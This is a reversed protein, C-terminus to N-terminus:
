ASLLVRQRRRESVLEQLVIIGKGEIKRRVTLYFVRADKSKQQDQLTINFYERAQFAFRDIAEDTTATFKPLDKTGSMGLDVLSKQIGEGLRIAEITERSKAEVAPADSRFDVIGESLAPLNKMYFAFQPLALERAVLKLLDQKPEPSRHLERSLETPNIGLRRSLQASSLRRAQLAQQLINPNYAM